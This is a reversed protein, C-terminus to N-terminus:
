KKIYNNARPHPYMIKKWKGWQNMKRVLGLPIMGKTYIAVGKRRNVVVNYSIINPLM